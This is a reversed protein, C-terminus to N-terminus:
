VPSVLASHAKAQELSAFTSLGVWRENSLQQQLEFWEPRSVDGPYAVIRFLVVQHHWRSWSRTGDVWPTEEEWSSAPERSSAPPPLDPCLAAMVLREAELPDSVGDLDVGLREAMVLWAGLAALQSNAHQAKFCAGAQQEAAEASAIAMDRDVDGKIGEEIARALLAADGEDVLGVVLDSGCFGCLPLGDGDLDHPGGSACSLCILKSGQQQLSYAARALAAAFYEVSMLLSRIFSM